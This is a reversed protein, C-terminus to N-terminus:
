WRLCVQAWRALARKKPGATVLEGREDVSGVMDYVDERESGKAEKGM